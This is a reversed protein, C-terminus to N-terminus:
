KKKKKPHIFKKVKLLKLTKSDTQILQVLIILTKKKKKKAILLITTKKERLTHQNKHM